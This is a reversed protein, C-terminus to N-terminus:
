APSVGNKVRKAKPDAMQEDAEKAIANLRDENIKYGLYQLDAAFKLALVMIPMLAGQYDEETSSFANITPIHDSKKDFYDQLIRHSGHTYWSGYKYYSTYVSFRDNEKQLMVSDESSPLPVLSKLSPSKRFCNKKSDWYLPDQQNLQEEMAVIEEDFKQVAQALEEPLKDGIKLLEKEKALLQNREYVMECRLIWVARTNDTGIWSSRIYIESLSRIIVWMGAVQKAEAVTKAAQLLDKFQLAMTIQYIAVFRKDTQDATLISGKILGCIEDLQKSFLSM